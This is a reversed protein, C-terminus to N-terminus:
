NRLILEKLQKAAKKHDVQRIFMGTAFEFGALYTVRPIFQFHWHFSRRNLSDVYVGNNLILNFSPFELLSNIAKELKLIIEALDDFNSYSTHEYYAEHRKPFILCEYSFKANNPMVCSFSNNEVVLNSKKALHCYYCKKNNLFYEELKKNRQVVKQPVSYLAVIQAHPHELTAGAHKGHNKFVLVYKAKHERSFYEIRNKYTDLINKLQDVSFQGPEQNHINTEVIVEQIGSLYTNANDKVFAPYKNPFTRITWNQSSDGIYFSEPPTLTENGPCFPCDIQAEYKSDFEDKPRKSREPAVVVSCSDIEDFLLDAM